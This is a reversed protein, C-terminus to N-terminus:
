LVTERIREIEEPVFSGEGVIRIMPLTSSTRVCLWEDGQEVYIGDKLKTKNPYLKDIKELSAYIDSAPLPITTKHIDPESFERALASITTTNARLFDAIKQVFLLADYGHSFPTYLVSGSGEGGVSAQTELSAQVVSPPGVDTRFVEVGYSDAVRDIAKSTSYTTVINTKERELVIRAFIPFTLEESLIRGTEDVMLVRSADSNLLFGGDCRTERVVTSAIAANARNPEPKRTSHEESGCFLPIVDIKLGRAFQRLIRGAAGGACDIAFRLKKSPESTDTSVSEFYSEVREVVSRCSGLGDFSKRSFVKSHYLNLFEELEFPSLYGGQKNLFILSNWHTSTHGGSVSVGGSYGFRKILWQLIPTPLVGYDDVEAGTAILGSVASHKLYDKSPRTDTGLAICGSDMYTSFAESLEAAIQPTLDVYTGRVGSTGLKLSM